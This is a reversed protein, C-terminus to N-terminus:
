RYKTDIKGALLFARDAEEMKGQEQRALGLNYYLTASLPNVQLAREFVEVAAGAQGSSLLAAGLNIYAPALDPELEIARRYSRIEEAARGAAGYAIGLNYHASPDNPFLYAAQELAAIAREKEGKEGYSVGLFVLARLFHPSLQLAQQYKEIAEELLGKAKLASAEEELAIAQWRFDRPLRQLIVFQGRSPIVESTEGHALRSAAAALARDMKDVWMEGLFGGEPASPDLSHERALAFFSAGKLLQERLSEAEARDRVVLIKLFLRRPVVRSRAINRRPSSSSAKEPHVRIWHDALPFSGQTVTPMHCDICGDKSNVPCAARELGTSHCGLCTKVHVPDDRRSNRHPDHCNLCSFGQGSQIYCESLRLATAQNSILVDQPLPDVLESFGAHCQACLEIKKENSLKRPDLIGASPRGKALAQLHPQGAGHCEECRVGAQGTRDHLPSGHCGLCKKEFGPSLVIGMATEYSAPKETPFGPSLALDGSTSHHLYRAEILAPRALPTGELEQLRFLFSLGHRRGGVVSEVPAAIPERDPMKVHFTLRPQGEVRYDIVPPPGEQKERAYGGSFQAGSTPQWTLAM